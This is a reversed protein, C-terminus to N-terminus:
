KQEISLSDLKNWDNATKKDSYKIWSLEKQQKM